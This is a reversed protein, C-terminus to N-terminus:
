LSTGGKTCCPLSPLLPLETDRARVCWGALVLFQLRSSLNIVLGCVRPKEETGAAVPLAHVNAAGQVPRTGAAATRHAEVLGAEM